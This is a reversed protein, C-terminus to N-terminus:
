NNSKSNSPHPNTLDEEYKVNRDAFAREVEQMTPANSRDRDEQVHLIKSLVLVGLVFLILGVLRKKIM